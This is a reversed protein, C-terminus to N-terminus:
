SLLYDINPQAMVRPIMASIAAIRPKPPIAPVSALIAIM